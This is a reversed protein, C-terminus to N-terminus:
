VPITGPALELVQFTDFGVLLNKAQLRLKVREAETSLAKTAEEIRAEFGWRLLAERQPGFGTEVLGVRRASERIRPFNVFCSLDSRGPALLPDSLPQHNRIASLTGEVRGPASDGGRDGYDLFIVIGASLHDAIERIEGEAMPSFEFITGEAPGAPLAPGNASRRLPRDAARVEAGELTVGLERWAGEARLLRRSPLADLFENGLIAGSFPGGHGIGPSRHVRIGAREGVPRARELAVEALFSSREVLGYEWGAPNELREGLRELVAGALTGDGPGLEMVRFPRPRGCSEWGAIVADALAAGFLPTVFPATYFDGEAGFAFGPSAYYGLGEAFQVLEWYRDFPLFGDPDAAEHLLRELGADVIRPALESAPM